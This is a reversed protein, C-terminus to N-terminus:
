YLFAELLKKGPYDQKSAAEEVLAQPALSLVRYFLVPDKGCIDSFLIYINTGRLTPAREICRLAEEMFDAPLTALNLLANAAGPNGDSLMIYKSKLEEGSM